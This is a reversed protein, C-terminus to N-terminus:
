ANRLALFVGSGDKAVTVVVHGIQKECQCCKKLFPHFGILRSLTSFIRCFFTQLPFGWWCYLCVLANKVRLFFIKKELPSQVGFLNSLSVTFDGDKSIDLGSHVHDQTELCLIGSTTPHPPLVSLALPWRAEPASTFVSYV